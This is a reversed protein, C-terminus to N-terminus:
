PVLFKSYNLEMKSVKDEEAILTEADKKVEKQGLASNFSVKVM